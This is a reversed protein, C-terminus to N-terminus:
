KSECNHLLIYKDLNKSKWYNTINKIEIDEIEIKGDSVTWSFNNYIYTTSAIKNNVYNYTYGLSKNNLEINKTLVVHSVLVKNRDCLSNVLYQINYKSVNQCLKQGTSDLRLQEFYTPVVVVSSNTVKTLYYSASDPTRHSQAISAYAALVTFVLSILTLKM